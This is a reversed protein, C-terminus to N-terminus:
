DLVALQNNCLWDASELVGLLCVRKVHMHADVHLRVHARSTRRRRWRQQWRHKQRMQDLVAQAVAMLLKVDAYKLEGAENHIHKCVLSM